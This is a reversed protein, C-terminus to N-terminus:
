GWNSCYLTAMGFVSDILTKTL